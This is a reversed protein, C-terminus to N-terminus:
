CHGESGLRQMARYIKWAYAARAQDCAARSEGPPCENPNLDDAPDPTMATDFGGYYAGLYPSLRSEERCGALCLALLVLMVRVM